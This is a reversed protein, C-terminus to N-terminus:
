AAKLVSGIALFIRARYNDYNRYGYSVRKLVKFHNNNAETGANTYGTKLSNAIYNRYKKLTKLCTAMQPHIGEHKDQVLTLFREPSKLEMATLLSQYVEWTRRLEDSQEMMQELLYDQTKWTRLHSVWRTKWGDINIGKTLPLRWFRKFTKYVVPEQLKKMVEVRCRDLARSALQVVHFKDICINAQPFLRRAVAMYPDHMDMTIYKVQARAANSYQGFYQLLYSKKRDPCIDLVKNSLGDVLVLAYKSDLTSVARFEDVGIVEPLYDFNTQHTRYWAKIVRQVTTWSVGFRKAIEKIPVKNATERFIELKILESIYCGKQTLNSPSLYTKDCKSCRYRQKRLKVWTPIAFNETMKVYSTKFGYKIGPSGCCPCSLNPCSQVAPYIMCEEGKYVAQYPDPNTPDSSVGEIKLKKLIIDFHSMTLSRQLTTAVKNYLSDEM